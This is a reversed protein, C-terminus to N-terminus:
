RWSPFSKEAAARPSFISILDKTIGVAGIHKKKVIGRILELKFFFEPAIQNCIQSRGQM